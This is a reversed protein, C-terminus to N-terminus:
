TLKKEQVDYWTLIKGALIEWDFQEIHKRGNVALKLRLEYSNIAKEIGNYISRVNRKVIIGTENDIVMDLTGSRTAIVPIGSAMAEAVTNAWGTQKEAAVFLDARHFLETNKEVPHNRIFEFPVHTTFADIAKSMSENVPTDFLLIKLNPYRAYLEECAKVILDTGKIHESLRGYVLITFPEGPKVDAYDKPYFLSTNVGGAALFPTIGFWLKDHNVVNKSCAFIILRKDKVIKRVKSRRGVHYFIKYRTNSQLMVDKLKRDTFFLMENEEQKLDNFSGMRIRTNIWDPSTGGPTYITFSHGMELFIRGLEVFRKVGGYLYTHPLIAGLKM